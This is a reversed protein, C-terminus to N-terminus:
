GGDGADSADTGGDLFQSTACEQACSGNVCSFLAIGTNRTETPVSAFGAACTLLGAQSSGNKVFCELADAALGQCNCDKNCKEVQAACKSKVCGACIGSTSAGDAISADPIQTTFDASLDCTAADAPADPAAEVVVDAAAESGSDATPTAETSDGGCAELGVAVLALSASSALFFYGIRM